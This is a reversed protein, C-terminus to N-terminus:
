QPNFQNQLQQIKAELRDLRYHAAIRWLEILRRIHPIM